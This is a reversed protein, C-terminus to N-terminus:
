LVPLEAEPRELTPALECSPCEQGRVCVNGVVRKETNVVFLRNLGGRSVRRKLISFKASVPLIQLDNLNARM